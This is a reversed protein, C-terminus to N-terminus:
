NVVLGGCANQPTGGKVSSDIEVLHDSWSKVSLEDTIMDTTSAMEQWRLCLDAQAM